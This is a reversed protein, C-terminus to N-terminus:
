PAFGVAWLDLRMDMGTGMCFTGYPTINSWFASAACGGVRDCVRLSCPFWITEASYSRVTSPALRKEGTLYASWEDM